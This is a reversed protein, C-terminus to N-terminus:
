YEKGRDLSLMVALARLLANQLWASNLLKKFLFENSGFPNQHHNISQVGWLVGESM